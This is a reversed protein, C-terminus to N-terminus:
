AELACSTTATTHDDHRPQYEPAAEFMLQQTPCLSGGFSSHIGRKRALVHFIVAVDIM